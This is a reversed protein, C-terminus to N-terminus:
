KKRTNCIGCVVRGPFTSCVCGNTKTAQPLITRKIITNKDKSAVPRAFGAVNGAVTAELLKKM